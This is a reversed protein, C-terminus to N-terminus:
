GWEQGTRSSAPWTTGRADLIVWEPSAPKLTGLTAGTADTVVYSRGGFVGQREGAGLAFIDPGEPERRVVGTKWSFSFRARTTAPVSQIDYVSYHRMFTEVLTM